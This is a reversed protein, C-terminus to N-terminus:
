KFESSYYPIILYSGPSIERHYLSNIQMVEAIYHEYDRYKSQCFYNEAIDQLTEGYRVEISTYYKYLVTEEKDQARSAITFGGISLSVILLVSGLSLISYIKLQKQRKIHNQEIKEERTMM